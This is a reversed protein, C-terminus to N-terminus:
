TGPAPHRTTVIGAPALRTGPVENMDIKIGLKGFQSIIEEFMQHTPSASQSVLSDAHRRGRHRARAPALTRQVTAGHAVKWGHDELAEKRRGSRVQLRLKLPVSRTLVM